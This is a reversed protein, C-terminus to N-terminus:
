SVSSSFPEINCIILKLGAPYGTQRLNWLENEKLPKGHNSPLFFIGLHDM